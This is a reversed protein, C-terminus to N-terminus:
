CLGRRRMVEKYFAQWWRRNFNAKSNCSNCVKIINSPCCNKKNYDIHHLVEKTGRGECQPNWCFKTKDRVYLFDKYENNSWIFCYSETSIGGKWNANKDGFRKLSMKRRTEKSPFRGKSKAGIKEKTQDTHERGYWPHNKPDSYEMRKRLSLKKRTKFSKMPNNVKKLCSASCFETIGRKGDVRALFADGCVFCAEKEIYSHCGKRFYNKTIHFGELNEWCIKM